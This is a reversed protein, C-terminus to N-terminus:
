ESKWLGHKNCLEWAVVKDAKVPFFAEPKDGPKLYKRMLIGDACIEIYIIYHDSEMPHASAKGVKVLIGDAQKEIFPVHKNEDPNGTQAELQKAPQACCVPTCGGKAYTKEYVNGCKECQFVAPKSAM